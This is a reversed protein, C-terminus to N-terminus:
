NLNQPNAQVRIFASLLIEGSVKLSAKGRLSLKKQNRTGFGKRLPNSLHAFRSLRLQEMNELGGYEWYLEYLNIEQMTSVVDSVRGSRFCLATVSVVKEWKGERTCWCSCYVVSNFVLEVKVLQADMPM